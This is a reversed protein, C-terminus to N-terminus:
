WSMKEKSGGWGDLSFSGGLRCSTAVKNVTLKFIFNKKLPVQM